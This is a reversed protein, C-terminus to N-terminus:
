SRPVKQQVSLLWSYHKTRVSLVGTWGTGGEKRMEAWQVLCKVFVLCLSEFDAGSYGLLM